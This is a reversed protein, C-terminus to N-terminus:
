HALRIERYSPSGTRRYRFLVGAGRVCQWRDASDPTSVPLYAPATRAIRSREPGTNAAEGRGLGTRGNKAASLCGTAFPLYGARHLLSLRLLRHRNSTLAMLSMLTRQCSYSLYSSKVRATVASTIWSFRTANRKGPHS